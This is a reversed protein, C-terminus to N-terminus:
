IEHEYAEKKLEKEEPKADDVSFHEWEELTFSTLEPSRKVLCLTGYFLSQHIPEPLVAKNEYPSKGKRKGYLTLTGGQHPWQHLEEFGEESRYHCNAFLRDESKIEKEKVNGNKELLLITYM